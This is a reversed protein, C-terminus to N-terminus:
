NAVKKVKFYRDSVPSKVGGKYHEVTSLRYNSKGLKQWKGTVSEEVLSGSWLATRSDKKITLPTEGKGPFYWKERLVKPTSSNFTYTIKPIENAAQAKGASLAAVPAVLGISAVLALLAEKFKM